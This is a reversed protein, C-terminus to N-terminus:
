NSNNTADDVEQTSQQQEEIDILAELATESNHVNVLHNLMAVGDLTDFACGTCQYQTKGSWAGITYGPDIKKKKQM